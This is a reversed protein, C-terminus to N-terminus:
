RKPEVSYSLVDLKNIKGEEDRNIYGCPVIEMKSSDLNELLHELNKGSPSPITEVTAFIGADTDDVKKIEGAITMISTNDERSGLHVFRSSSGASKMADLLVDKPIVMGHHCKGSEEEGFTCVKVKIEM